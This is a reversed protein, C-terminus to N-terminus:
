TPRMPHPPTAHLPPPLHFPTRLTSSLASWYPGFVRDDARDDHWWQTWWTGLGADFLSQCFRACDPAHRPGEQQGLVAVNLRARAPPGHASRCAGALTRCRQSQPGTGRSLPGVAVGVPVFVLRPRAEIMTLRWRCVNYPSDVYARVINQILVRIGSVISGQGFLEAIRIRIRRPRDLANSSTFVLQTWSDTTETGTLGHRQPSLDPM